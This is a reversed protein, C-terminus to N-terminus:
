SNNLLFTKINNEMNNKNIKNSYNIKNHIKKTHRKNTHIEWYKNTKNTGSEGERKVFISITKLFIQLLLLFQIMVYGVTKIEEKCPLPIDNM